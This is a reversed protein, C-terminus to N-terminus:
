RPAPHRSSRRDGAEDAHLRVLGGAALNQAVQEGTVVLAADPELVRHQQLFEGGPLELGCGVLQRGAPLPSGRHDLDLPAIGGAVAADLGLGGLARRLLLGLDPLQFGALGFEGLEVVVRPGLLRQGFGLGDLRAEVLDLAGDLRPGDPPRSSKAIAPQMTVMAWSPDSWTMAPSTLGSSMGFGASDSSVPAATPLPWSGSGTVWRTLTGPVETEM